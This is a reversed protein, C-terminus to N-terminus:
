TLSPRTPRWPQFASVGSRTWWDALAKGLVNPDAGRKDGDIARDLQGVFLEGIERRRRLGRSEAPAVDVIGVDDTAGVEEGCDAAGVAVCRCLAGARGLVGFEVVKQQDGEGVQQEVVHSLTEVVAPADVACRTAFPPGCRQPADAQEVGHVAM